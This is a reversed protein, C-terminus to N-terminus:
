FGFDQVIQGYYEILWALTPTADGTTYFDTMYTNYALQDKALIHLPPYGSSLLIGNAMM